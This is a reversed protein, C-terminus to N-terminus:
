PFRTHVTADTSVTKECTSEIGDTDICVTAGSLYGDLAKAVIATETSTSSSETGCGTMGIALIASAALLSTKMKM